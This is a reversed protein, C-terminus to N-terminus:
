STFIAQLEHSNLHLIEEEISSLRERRIRIEFSEQPQLKKADACAQYNECDGPDISPCLMMSGCDFGLGCIKEAM